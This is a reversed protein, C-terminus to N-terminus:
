QDRTDFYRAMAAAAREQATDEVYRDLMARSSWGHSAMVDGESIGARLAASASTHRLRHPHFGKVGAMTARKLLAGRLSHYSWGRNATGLWLPPTHALKHGRRARRLYRDIARATDPSFAAIRHKGGKARTVTVLRRRLDVDDVTLGVAEGARMGTDALLRVVAEDRLAEFTTWRDAGAPVRCAKVLAALEGDALRPVRPKDLKPPKMGLLLDTDTEGEDALWATFQRLAAYRARATAPAAGAAIADALFAAATKRDLASATVLLGPAQAQHWAIFRAVGGAYVRITGPAKHEARLTTAWSEALDALDLEAAAPQAAPRRHATPTSASQAM